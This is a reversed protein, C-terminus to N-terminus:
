KLLNLTADLFITLNAPMLIPMYICPSMHASSFCSIGVSLAGPAPSPPPAPSTPPTTSCPSSPPPHTRASSTSSTRRRNRWRRWGPWGGVWGFRRRWFGFGFGLRALCISHPSISLGLRPDRRKLLWDAESPYLTQPHILDFDARLLTPTLRRRRLCFPTPWFLVVSLGFRTFYSTLKTHGIIAIGVRWTGRKEGGRKNFYM